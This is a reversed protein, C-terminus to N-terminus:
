VNMLIIALLACSLGWYEKKSVRENWLIRGGTITLLISGCTRLPFAVTGSIHQLALLLFMFGGALAIGIVIGIRKEAPKVRRHKKWTRVTAAVCAGMFLAVLYDLKYNGGQITSVLKTATGVMGTGAFAVFLLLWEVPTLKKGGSKVQALLAIGALAFILGATQSITPVEQWYFISFSTPVVMSLTIIAWSVGLRAGRSIVSFYTSVATFLVLGTGLGILASTNHFQLPSNHLKWALFFLLACGTGIAYAPVISAGKESTIKYSMGFVSVFITSLILYFM